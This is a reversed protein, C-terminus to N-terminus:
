STALRLVMAIMLWCCQARRQLDRQHEVLTRRMHDGASAMLGKYRTEAAVGRYTCRVSGETEVRYRVLTTMLARDGVLMEGDLELQEPTRSATVRQVMFSRTKSTGAGCGADELVARCMSTAWGPTYIRLRYRMPEGAHEIRVDHMYIDHELLARCTGQLLWMPVPMVLQGAYLETEAAAM